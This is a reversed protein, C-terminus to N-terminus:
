KTVRADIQATAITATESGTATALYRRPQGGSRASQGTLYPDDRVYEFNQGNLPNRPIDVGAGLLVNIGKAFAEQGLVAGYRQALQM